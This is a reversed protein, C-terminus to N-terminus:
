GQSEGMVEKRAAEIAADLDQPCCHRASAIRALMVRFKTVEGRAKDTEAMAERLEVDRAYLAQNAVALVAQADDREKIATALQDHLRNANPNESCCADTTM